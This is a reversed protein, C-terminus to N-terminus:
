SGFMDDSIPVVGVPAVATQARPAAPPFSPAALGRAMPPPGAPKRGLAGAAGTQGRLGGAGAPEGRLYAAMKAHDAIPQVMTELSLDYLKPGLEPNAPSVALRSTARDFHANATYWPAADYKSVAILYGTVPHTFDGAQHLLSTTKTKPDIGILLKALTTSAQFIKIKGPDAQDEINMLWGPQAKMKDAILREEASGTVEIEAVLDCIPCPEGILQRCTLKGGRQDGMDSFWHLRTPVMPPAGRRAYVRFLRSMGLGDDWKFYRNAGKAAKNAEDQAAQTEADYSGFYDYNENSM